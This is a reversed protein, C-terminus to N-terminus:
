RASQLMNRGLGYKEPSEMIEREFKNFYRGHVSSELSTILIGLAIAGFAYMTGKNEQERGSFLDYACGGILAPVSLFFTAIGTM